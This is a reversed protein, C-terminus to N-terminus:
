RVVVCWQHLVTSCAHHVAQEGLTVGPRPTSQLETSASRTSRGAQRAGTCGRLAVCPRGSCGCCLRRVCLCCLVCSLVIVLAHLRCMCCGARCSHLRAPAGVAVASCDAACPAPAHLRYMCCGALCTHLRAPAGVAVASCDAACPAPHTCDTCVAPLVAAIYGCSCAGCAVHCRACSLCLVSHNLRCFKVGLAVQRILSFWVIALVLM